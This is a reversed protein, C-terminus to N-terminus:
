RGGQREGNQVDLVDEKGDSLYSVSDSPAIILGAILLIDTPDPGLGAGPEEKIAPSIRLLAKLGM